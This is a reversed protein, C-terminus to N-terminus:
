LQIAQIWSAGESVTPTCAMSAKRNEVEKAQEEEVCVSTLLRAGEGACGEESGGEEGGGDM